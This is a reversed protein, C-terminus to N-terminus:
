SVINNLLAISTPVTIVALITSLMVSLAAQEPHLNLNSAIVVVNGAMPTALMLIIVTLLDDPVNMIYYFFLIGIAPYILHKWLLAFFSFKWDISIKYFSALTIGIVMMGLVSYAGKFNELTSILITNLIIDNSKFIIGLVASYIIPLRIIKMLCERTSLNGKATIFYGVTFEYLNIGIIIFITIAIQNPDFISFAIPLAFYGTNGTGGAFGFLNSKNCNWLKKGVFYAISASISATFFGAISYSFYTFNSPSQIISIFIVVPSIIYILLSSIDKTKLKLKKGIFFGTLTILMLLLTRIMVEFFM